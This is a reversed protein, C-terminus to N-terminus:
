DNNPGYIGTARSLASAIEKDAEKAHKEGGKSMEKFLRAVEERIIAKMEDTLSGSKEEEKADEEELEETEEINDDSEESDETLDESVEEAAEEAAEVEPTEEEAIEEEVEETVEEASDAAEAKEEDTDAFAAMLKELLARIESKDM